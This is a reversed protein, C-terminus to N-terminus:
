GLMPHFHRTKQAWMTENAPLMIASQSRYRSFAPSPAYFRTYLVRMLSQLSIVNLDRADLPLDRADLSFDRADLPLDRSCAYGLLCLVNTYYKYLAPGVDVVNPRRQKFAICIHQAKQSYM